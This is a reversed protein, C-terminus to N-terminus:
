QKPITTRETLWAMDRDNVSTFAPVGPFPRPYSPRTTPEQWLRSEVHGDAFSVTSAGNHRDGPIDLIKYKETMDVAFYGDNISGEWEDILVWMKSADRLEASKRFTIYNSLQWIGNGNMYCNMSYSRVRDHRGGDITVQSRDSPCRYIKAEKTYGGISGFSQYKVGILLDTNTSDYKSGPDGDPRLWGAVWSANPLDKGSLPQDSNPPLHQDHDDVYMLWALQLQKLNNLCASSKGKQKTRGLVPLLLGALIAVVAIVVMLEILTFGTAM